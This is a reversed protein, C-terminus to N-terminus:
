MAREDLAVSKVLAYVKEGERLALADAALRTIAAVLADGGPLALAVFIFAGEEGNIKTITARLITRLSLDTPASKAIAVDTARVEVPIPGDSRPLTAAVIIEGAPHALRTIGYRADLSGFRARLLSSLAFRAGLLAKRPAGRAVVRGEKLVIAEDALRLIEEVSHSVLLIPIAFDDRLMEILSMIELRRAPDLSATPEDMVLLRPSAMLARAFGVRQREGGSLTWTRRRLLAGIGLRAVVADFPIRREARPTFFWGFLINQKVSLHPFLLADQFVVGIRRRDPAIFVGRETDTLVVGDVVIFGRDPRLLGAILLGLTSKGAGSAGHLALVRAKSEFAAHLSFDGRTWDVDAAIM